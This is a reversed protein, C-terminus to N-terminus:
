PQLVTPREWRLDDGPGVAVVWFERKGRGAEDALATELAPGTPDLRFTGGGSLIRRWATGAANVLWQGAYGSALPLRTDTTVTHQAADFGTLRARGTRLLAQLTLKLGEGAPEAATVLWLKDGGRGGLFISQGVWAAATPAGAGPTVTVTNAVADVAVVQGSVTAQLEHSRQGIRLTRGGITAAAQWSGDPAYRVVALAADTEFYGAVTRPAGADRAQLIVDVGGPRTVKVAVADAATPLLEVSAVQPTQVFPDLVAVYTSRLDQGQRRALLYPLLDPQRVPSTRAEAVILATGPQAPLHTRLKVLPEKAPTTEIVAGSGAAARQVNIFHQFGSGRYGSYGGSYGPKGLVPDDFFQGVAVNEGALTGRPQPAGFQGNVIQRTGTVGHLVYDHQTGGAVRFIDLLYADQSSTGILVLARRYESVGSYNGPADVDAYQVWDADGFRHLRGGVNGDQRRANVTVTNHAATIKSWSYIGPVQNNMADPYGTDPTVPLKHAYLDITLGDFHGHGGRFGYYCQLGVTQAPNNLLAMGYGDLVRSRQPRDPAAALAQKLPERLDARFLSDYTTFASTAGGVQDLLTSFPQRPYKTFASHWWNPSGRLLGHRVDASDGLAPTFQDNVQITRMWGLLLPMKPHDWLNTGARELELATDILNGVWSSNYGPSSEEPVGDRHVWNYLAYPIGEMSGEAGTKDLIESLVAQAPAAQRVAVLIALARQHMGFNGRIKGALVADIGDELINAEILSRIQEGSQGRLRQLEQDGDITEWINDYAEALVAITGTEWILNLIKGHYGPNLFGYRSQTDHDMAPYIDAIRCLMLAAAHAYQKDGTLLYLRSLYQVGPLAFKQWHLHNAHAVMWRRETGDAPTWGWGDDPYPGSLLAKNQYESLYYARFDNSPYVEGGVPCIIKFPQEWEVKWPYTGFKTIIEQRHVPCGAVSDNFARPVSSDPLRWVLDAPPVTLWRESSSKMSAVLRQADSDAAVRQRALAVEAPTHLAQATKLPWRRDRKLPPPLTDNMLVEIRRFQGFETAGTHFGTFAIVVWVKAPLAGSLRVSLNGSRWPRWTVTDEPYEVTQQALLEARGYTPANPATKPDSGALEWGAQTLLLVRISPTRNVESSYGQLECGIQINRPKPSPLDVERGFYVTGLHQPDKDDVGVQLVEEGDVTAVKWPYAPVAGAARLDPTIVDFNSYRAQWPTALLILSALWM